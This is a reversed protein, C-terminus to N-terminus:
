KKGKKFPEVRVLHIDAVIRLKPNVWTSRAENQDLLEQLHKMLVIVDQLDDVYVEDCLTTKM